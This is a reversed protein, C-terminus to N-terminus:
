GHRTSRCRDSIRRATVTRASWEPVGAEVYLLVLLVGRPVGSIKASAELCTAIQRGNEEISTARATTSAVFFPFAGFAALALRPIM